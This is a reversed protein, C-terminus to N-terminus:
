KCVWVKILAGQSKEDPIKYQVTAGKLKVRKKGPADLVRTQEGPQLTGLDSYVDDARKAYHLKVMQLEIASQEVSLKVGKLRTKPVKFETSVADPKVLKEAIVGCKDEAHVLNSLGVFLIGMGVFMLCVNLYRAM